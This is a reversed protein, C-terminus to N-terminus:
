YSLCVYTAWTKAVQIKQAILPVKRFSDVFFIWFRNQSYDKVKKFEAGQSNNETLDIIVKFFYKNFFFSGQIKNQGAKQCVIYSDNTVSM